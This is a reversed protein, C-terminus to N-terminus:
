QVERPSFIWAGLRRDFIKDYSDVPEYGMLADNWRWEPDPDGTGDYVLVGKRADWRFPVYERARHGLLPRIPKSM